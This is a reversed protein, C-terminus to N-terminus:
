DKKCVAIKCNSTNCEVTAKAFLWTSWGDPCQALAFQGIMGSPATDPLKCFKEIKDIVYDPGPRGSNYDAKLVKKNDYLVFANHGTNVFSEMGIKHIDIWTAYFYNDGYTSHPVLEMRYNCNVEFPKTDTVPVNVWGSNVNNGTAFVASTFMVAFFLTAILISKKM